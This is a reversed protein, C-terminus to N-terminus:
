LDNRNKRRAMPAIPAENTIVCNWVDTINAGFITPVAFAVAAPHPLRPPPTVCNAMGSSNLAKM